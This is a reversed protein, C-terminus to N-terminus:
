RVLQRGKSKIQERLEEFSEAFKQVGEKELVEVVEEYSVGAERLDELFRRADDADGELTPRIEAHDMTAELTSAPMTNVTNPGILNEVYIVDRRDPNKTSTSAWLPRQKTAGKAELFEWDGGSFIREFEEYALKANEIALRGKLDERGVEDLRKDAEADVRSVFFSAVSAVGSPDGGDAVLRQLGRFYAGAVARYRSLSFILTVNISKGMATM